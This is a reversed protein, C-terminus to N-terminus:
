CCRFLQRLWALLALVGVIQANRNLDGHLLHWVWWGLAWVSLLLVGWVAIRQARRSRSM